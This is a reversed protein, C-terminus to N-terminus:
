EIVETAQLSVSQPFTIGLAEAAKLNIVLEFKTPQEIPLDAPSAGKLIKDVYTAGRHALHTISAGYSILGGAVVFERRDYIAPLRHKAALETIRKRARTIAPGPLVLMADAHERVAAHFSREVDTAGEIDLNQLAVGYATAAEQVERQAPANIPNRSMGLIALRSLKPVIEKLLQLRKTGIERTLRSLGTINGGPRALNTVFGSIIPDPDQLMVIPITGTAGKAARTDVGGLTVIISVKRKVLKAALTPLRNFKGGACHIGIAINKGEVYGLERLGQRFAEIRGAVNNPNTACLIGIEPIKALQQQAHAALPWTMLGGVVSSLFQRRRM